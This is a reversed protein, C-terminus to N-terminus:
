VFNRILTLAGKGKVTQSEFVYNMKELFIPLIHGSNFLKFSPLLSIGQHTFVLNICGDECKCGQDM